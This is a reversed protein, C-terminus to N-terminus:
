AGALKKLMAFYRVPFLRQIFEAQKADRGILVRPSGREIGRVILEAAADPSMKLMKEMQKLALEAQQKDTHKAVRANRAISTAIGGPHVVTLAISSGALEHRLSESFGRVAFKSACYATQGPPAIIGFLSCINVINASPEQRLMPLFAKTMRVVGWFNIDILWKFDDLSLQEFQGGLAVGANNVLISLRGHRAKIDGPLAAIAAADGVDLIHTSVDVGLEAAKGRVAALGAENLDALALNCGHKALAVALSAGIGSAAGTVLAVGGKLADAM